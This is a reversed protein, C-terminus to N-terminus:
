KADSKSTLKKKELSMKDNHKEMDQHLQMIKTM